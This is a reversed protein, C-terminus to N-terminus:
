LMADLISWPLPVPGIKSLSQSPYKPPLPSSISCSSSPSICSTRHVDYKVDGCFGVVKWKYSGASAPIVLSTWLNVPLRMPMFCLSVRCMFLFELGSLTKMNNKESTILSSAISVFRYWWLYEPVKSTTGERIGSTVSDSIKRKKAIIMWISFSM